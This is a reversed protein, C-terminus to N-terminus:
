SGVKASRLQFALHKVKGWESRHEWSPFINEQPSAPRLLEVAGCLGARLNFMGCPRQSSLLTAKSGLKQFRPVNGSRKHISRSGCPTRVGIFELSGFHGVKRAIV